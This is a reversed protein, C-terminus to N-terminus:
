AEHLLEYDILKGLAHQIDRKEHTELHGGFSFRDTKPRHLDLSDSYVVIIGLKTPYEFDSRRRDYKEPYVTYVPIHKELQLAYTTPKPTEGARLSAMWYALIDQKDRTQFAKRELKRISDDPNERIGSDYYDVLRTLRRKIEAEVRELPLLVDTSYTPMDNHIRLRVIWADEGDYRGDYICSVRNASSKAAVSMNLLWWRDTGYKHEIAESPEPLQGQRLALRWYQVTNAASPDSKYARYAARLTDDSNQRAVRRKM